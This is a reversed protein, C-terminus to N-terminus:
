ESVKNDPDGCDANNMGVFKLQCRLCQPIVVRNVAM